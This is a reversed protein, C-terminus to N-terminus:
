ALAQIKMISAINFYKVILIDSSLRIMQIQGTKVTILATLLVRGM